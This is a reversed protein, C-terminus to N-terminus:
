RTWQKVLGKKNRPHQSSVAGVPFAWNMCILLLTIRGLYQSIMEGINEIKNEEENTTPQRTIMGVDSM